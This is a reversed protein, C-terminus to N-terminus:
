KNVEPLLFQDLNVYLINTSQLAYVVTYKDAGCLFFHISQLECLLYM